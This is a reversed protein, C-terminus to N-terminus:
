FPGIAHIKEILQAKREATVPKHFHAILYQHGTPEFGAELDVEHARADGAHGFYAECEDKFRDFAFKLLHYYIGGAARIRAPLGNGMQEFARGDTMAGGVLIVEDYPLFNAYCAPIFQQRGKRYFAIVAHGFDPAAHAFKRRFLEDIFFPGDDVTTILIDEFPRALSPM